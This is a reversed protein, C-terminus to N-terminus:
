LPSSHVVKRYPLSHSLVWAQFLSLHKYVHSSFSSLGPPWVLHTGQCFPCEQKVGFYKRLVHNLAHSATGEFADCQTPSSVVYWFRLHTDLATSFLFCVFVCFQELVWRWYFFFSQFNLLKVVCNKKSLQVEQPRHCGVLWRLCWVWCSNWILYSSNVSFARFHTIWNRDIECRFRKTWNILWKTRHFKGILLPQSKELKGHKILLHFHGLKGHWRWTQSTTWDLDRAAGDKAGPPETVAKLRLPSSHPFCCRMKSLNSNSGNSWSELFLDTWTPFATFNQFHLPIRNLDDFMQQKSSMTKTHTQQLWWSFCESGM